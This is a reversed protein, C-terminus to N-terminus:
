NFKTNCNQKVLDFLYMYNAVFNGITIKGYYASSICIIFYVINGFLKCLTFVSKKASGLLFLKINIKKADEYASFVKDSNWKKAGFARIEEIAEVSDYAKRNYEINADTQDNGTNEIKLQYMVNCAIVIIYSILVICAVMSSNQLLMIIALISSIIISIAQPVCKAFLFYISIVNNSLLSLTEGKPTKDFYEIGKERTKNYIDWQIEKTGKEVYVLEFSKSIMYSLIMVIVLVVASILLRRITSTQNNIIVNDIFEQILKPVLVNCYEYIFTFGTASFVFLFYKKLYKINWFYLKIYNVHNKRKEM